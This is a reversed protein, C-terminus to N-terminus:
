GIWKSSDWFAIEVRDAMARGDRRPSWGVTALWGQGLLWPSFGQAMQDHTGRFAYLARNMLEVSEAVGVLEVPAFQQGDWLRPHHNGGLLTLDKAVEEAISL